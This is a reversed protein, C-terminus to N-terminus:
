LKSGPHNHNTGAEPAPMKKAAESIAERTEKDIKKLHGNISNITSQYLHPKNDTKGAHELQQIIDQFISKTEIVSDNLGDIALNKDDLDKPKKLYEMYENIKAFLDHVHQEDISIKFGALVSILNKVTTFDSKLLKSGASFSFLQSNNYYNGSGSM